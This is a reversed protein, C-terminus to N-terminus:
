KILAWDKHSWKVKILEMFARDRFETVSPTLVEAYPNQLSVAWNVAIVIWSLKHRNKVIRENKELGFEGM